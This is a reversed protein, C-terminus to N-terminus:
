NKDYWNEKLKTGCMRCYLSNDNIYLGCNDCFRSPTTHTIIVLAPKSKPIYTQYDEYYLTFGLVGDVEEDDIGIIDYNSKFPPKYDELRDGSHWVYRDKFEDVFSDWDEAKVKLRM